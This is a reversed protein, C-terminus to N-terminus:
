VGMSNLYYQIINQSVYVGKQCDIDSNFENKYKSILFYKSLVM